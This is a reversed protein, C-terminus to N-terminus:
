SVINGKEIMIKKNSKVLLKQINNCLQHILISDSGVKGDEIKNGTKWNNQLFTNIEYLKKNVILLMDEDIDEEKETAFQLSNMFIIKVFKLLDIQILLSNFYNQFFMEIRQFFLGNSILKYNLDLLSLSSSSSSSTMSCFKIFIKIFKNFDIDDDNTSNGFQYFANTLHNSLKKLQDNQIISFNQLILDLGEVIFDDNHLYNLALNIFSENLSSIEQSPHHFKHINEKPNQNTNENSSIESLITLLQQIISKISNKKALMNTSKKTHSDSTKISEYFKLLNNSFNIFDINYKLQILLPNNLHTLYSLLKIFYKWLHVNGTMILKNDTLFDLLWNTFNEPLKFKSANIMCSQSSSSSSSSCSSSSSPSSTGPSATMMVLSVAGRSPSSSPSMRIPSLYPSKTPSSNVNSGSRPFSPNLNSHATSFTAQFMCTISKLVVYLIQPDTNNTICNSNVIHPLFNKAFWVPSVTSLRLLITKCNKDNLNNILSSVSLNNQCWNSWIKLSSASSLSSNLHEMFNYILQWYLKTNKLKNIIEPNMIGCQILIEKSDNSTSISNSSSNNAFFNFVISEYLIPNNLLIPIGGISIFIQKLKSNNSQYDYELLYQLNKLFLKTNKKDSDKNISIMIQMIIEILNYPDCKQFIIPLYNKISKGKQIKNLYYDESKSVDKNDNDNDNTNTNNNLSSRSNKPTLINNNNHSIKMFAPTNKIPSPCLNNKMENENGNINRQAIPTEMVNSPSSSQKKLPSNDNNNTISLILNEDNEFDNDWFEDTAFNTEKFKSLKKNLNSKIVPPATHENKNKNKNESKNKNKNENENTIWPHNLLVLATPRKYMNKQFCKSLFDKVEYSMSDPPIYNDNEIAYSITTNTLKSFPPDGTLLEVVTSGLSWIDSLTSAGRNGLIEPSMWNLSGALTMATNTVRTSVGFDALKVIREANLLLNAAKIDRHIVGQNHLYNLGNLTQKIYTKANFEPIGHGSSIMNKLSGLSCFELIIYLSSSKQIFGHYKVINTHNLNKLLDIESMIENLDDNNHYNIEKIAVLQSTKKNIAKYVVGYSGQGIVKKLQYQVSKNKRQSLSSSSTTSSTPIYQATAPTNNDRNQRRQLQQQQQQQQQQAPTLNIRDYM